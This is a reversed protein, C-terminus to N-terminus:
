RTKAARDCMSPMAWPMAPVLRCRNFRLSDTIATVIVEYIEGTPGTAVPATETGSGDGAQFRVGTISGFAGALVLLAGDAGRPM